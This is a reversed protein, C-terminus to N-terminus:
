LSMSFGHLRGQATSCCLVHFLVAARNPEGLFLDLNLIHLLAAIPDRNNKQTLLTAKKKKFCKNIHFASNCVPLSRRGETESGWILVIASAADLQLGFGPAQEWVHTHSGLCKPWRRSSEWMPVAPPPKVWYQLEPRLTSFRLDPGHVYCLLVRAHYLHAPIAMNLVPQGLHDAAPNHSSRLSSSQTLVTHFQGRVEGCLTRHTM